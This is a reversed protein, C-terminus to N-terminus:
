LATVDRWAESAAAHLDKKISDRQSALRGACSASVVIRTTSAGSARVNVELDQLDYGLPSLIKSVSAELSKRITALNSSGEILVEADVEFGTSFNQPNKSLYNVTSFYKRTSASSIIVSEPTQTEVQGYTGDELLVYDGVNTPFWPEGEVVPRSILGSITEAPLLVKGGQLAENVLVSKFNLSKVLWPVGQWVVREGERVSSLNFIIRAEHIFLHVTSKAVWLLALLGLLVLTALFWDNLFHLTIIMAFVAALYAAIVYTFHFLKSMGQLRNRIMKVHFFYRRAWLLVWLVISFVILAFVINRGRTQAFEQVGDSFAQLVTRHDELDNKLKRNLTDIQVKLEDKEHALTDRSNQFDKLFPPYTKSKILKDLSALAKDIQSMRDQMYFVKSRIAEIRRPKESVRRVADFLPEVLEQAEQLLDRKQPKQKSEAAPLEVETATTVFSARAKELRNDLDNIDDQMEDADEKSARSQAKQRKDLEAELWKIDREITTLQDVTSTPADSTVAVPEASPTEGEACADSLFANTSLFLCFVVGAIKLANKFQM